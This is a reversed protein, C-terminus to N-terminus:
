MIIITSVINRKNCGVLAQLLIIEDDLNEWGSMTVVDSSSDVQQLPRIIHISIGVNALAAQGGICLRFHHAITSKKGASVLPRGSWPYLSVLVVYIVIVVM